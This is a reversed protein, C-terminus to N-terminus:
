RCPPPEMPSFDGRAIAELLDAYRMELTQMSELNTFRCYSHPGFNEAMFPLAAQIARAQPLTHEFTCDVGHGRVRIFGQGMAELLIALRGAGNFDWPMGKLRHIVEEPMELKRANEPIQIWSAHETIWAYAGTSGNIWAGERM